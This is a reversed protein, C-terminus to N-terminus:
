SETRYCEPDLGLNRLLEDAEDAQEAQPPTPSAVPEGMFIPPEIEERLARLLQRVTEREEHLLRLLEFQDAAKMPEPTPLSKILVSGEDQYEPHWAYPHWAYLGFGAHGAGVLLRVVEDDSENEDAIFAAIYEAEDKTLTIDIYRNVVQPAPQEPQALADLAIQRYYDREGNSGFNIRYDAECESWRAIRTLAERLLETQTTM